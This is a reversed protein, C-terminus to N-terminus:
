RSHLRHVLNCGSMKCHFTLHKCCSMPGLEIISMVNFVCRLIKKENAEIFDNRLVRLLSDAEM